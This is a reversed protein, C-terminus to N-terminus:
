TKVKYIHSKLFNKMGELEGKREIDRIRIYFSKEQTTIELIKSKILAQWILIIGLALIFIPLFLLLGLGRITYFHFHPHISFDIFDSYFPIEKKFLLISTLLLLSAFAFIVLRNRLLYGDIISYNSVSSFEIHKYPFRNRLLDIGNENISVFDNTYM